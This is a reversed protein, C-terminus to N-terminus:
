HSPLNSAKANSCPSIHLLGLDVNTKLFSTEPNGDEDSSFGEQILEIQADDSITRVSDSLRSSARTSSVSPTPTGFSSSSLTRCPLKNPTLM